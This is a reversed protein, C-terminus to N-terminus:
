PYMPIGDTAGDKGFILGFVFIGFLIELPEM